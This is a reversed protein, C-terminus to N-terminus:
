QSKVAIQEPPVEEINANGLSTEIENQFSEKNIDKQCM